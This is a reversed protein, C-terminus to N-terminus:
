KSHELFEIWMPGGACPYQALPSLAGRDPHITYVTIRHSIEGALVLYRGTPDINMGRPQQETKITEQYTLKGSMPDRTFLSLTSTSRETTYLFRGDPTLRVEACWISAPPPDPTVPSRPWGPTMNFASPVSEITQKAELSGTSGNRDFVDVTGTLENLVYVHEGSPSFRLHRPGAGPEVDVSAHGSLAGTSADFHCWLVQDQALSTYYLFKNDPSPLIAHARGVEEVIRQHVASEPPEPTIGRTLILNEGYSAALLYKGEADLTIYAATAPLPADPSCSTLEGTPGVTYTHLIGTGTNQVAYLRSKGPDAVLARVHDLGTASPQRSLGGTLADMEFVDIRGAASCAIFLFLKSM